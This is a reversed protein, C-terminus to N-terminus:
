VAGPPLLRRSPDGAGSRLSTVGAPIDFVAWHWWGGGPADSDFMLVAYSRAGAPAHSWALAPSINGGQCGSRDYVHPLSISGGSAIDASRLTLGSGAAAQRLASPRAGAPGALAASPVTAPAAALALMLAIRWGGIIRVSRRM